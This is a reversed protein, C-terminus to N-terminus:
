DFYESKEGNNEKLNPVKLKKKWVWKKRRQERECKANKINEKMDLVRLKHLDQLLFAISPVCVKTRAAHWMIPRDTPWAYRRGNEVLTESRNSKNNGVKWCNRLENKFGMPKNKKNCEILWNSQALQTIEREGPQRVSQSSFWRVSDRVCICPLTHFFDKFLAKRFWKRNRDDWILFRYLM